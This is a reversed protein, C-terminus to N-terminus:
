CDLKAGRPKSGATSDPFCPLSFMMAGVMKAAMVFTSGLEKAASAATSLTFSGRPPIRPTYLMAHHEKM